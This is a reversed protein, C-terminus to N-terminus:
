AGGSWCTSTGTYTGLPLAPCPLLRLLLLLLLLWGGCMWSEGCQGDARRRTGAVASAKGRM